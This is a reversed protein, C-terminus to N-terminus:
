NLQCCLCEPHFLRTSPYAEQIQQWFRQFMRCVAYATYVIEVSKKGIIRLCEVLYRIGSCDIYTLGSFDFVVEEVKDDYFTKLIMPLASSSAIELEGRCTITLQDGNKEGFIMLQCAPLIPYDM